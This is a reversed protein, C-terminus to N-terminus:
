PNEFWYLLNGQYKPKYDERKFVMDSLQYGPNDKIFEAPESKSQESINGNQYVYTPTLGKYDGGLPVDVTETASAAAGYM